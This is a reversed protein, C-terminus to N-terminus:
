PLKAITPNVTGWAARQEVLQPWQADELQLLPHLRFVEWTAHGVAHALHAENIQQQGDAAAELIKRARLTAEAVLERSRALTASDEITVEITPLLALEFGHDSVPVLRYTGPPVPPSWESLAVRLPLKDPAGTPSCLPRNAQQPPLPFAYVHYGDIGANPIPATTM